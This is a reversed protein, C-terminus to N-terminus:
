GRSIWHARMFYLIMLIGTSICFGVVGWFAWSEQAFPIGEVNMGLLGTIFTLPLFILAVISILLARSDIQEARRDTLEEHMLASRERVADLEEAMRASLDAANRLHIRDDEDLWPQPSAVLRDLAQRQPGIFRRYAISQARVATVTRRLAFIGKERIEIECTDLADGLRGIEPDLLAANEDAFAGLLDGSDQIQGSLFRRIVFDLVAPNHYTLSICRGKIAWIRCSVLLDSTDRTRTGMGRLNLLIGDGIVESRPRTEAALIASRVHDAIDPQQEIWTRAAPETGDLHLWILDSKEARALGEAFPLETAKNDHYLFARM